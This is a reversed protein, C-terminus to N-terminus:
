FTLYFHRVRVRRCLCKYACILLDIRTVMHVCMRTHVYVRMYVVRTCMYVNAGSHTNQISDKVTFCRLYEIFLLMFDKAM